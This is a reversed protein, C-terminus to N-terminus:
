GTRRAVVVLGPTLVVGTVVHAGRAVGHWVGRTLASHGGPLPSPLFTVEEFGCRGLRSRLWTRGFVYLHEPNFWRVRGQCLRRHAPHMLRELTAVALIVARKNPVRLLVSGGPRVLSGLTDWAARLSPEYYLVDSAVVVDWQGRLATLPGTMTAMGFRGAAEATASESIDHLTLVLDPRRAAVKGLLHGTAGGIDLVHGHAPASEAVLAALHDLIPAREVQYYAEDKYVREFHEAIVRANLHRDVWLLDCASCRRLRMCNAYHVFQGVVSADRCGCDPCQGVPRARGHRFGVRRAERRWCDVLPFGHAQLEIDLADPALHTSRFM